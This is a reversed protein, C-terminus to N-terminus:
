ENVFKQQLKSESLSYFFPLLDEEIINSFVYYM